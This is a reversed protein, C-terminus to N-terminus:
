LSDPDLEATEGRRHELLAEEAFCALKDSSKEFTEDWRHQSELEALLWKALSNQAEPSLESAREFAQELLKTM